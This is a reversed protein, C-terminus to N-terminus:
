NRSIVLKQVRTANTKNEILLYYIGPALGDNCIQLRNSTPAEWTRLEKGTFDVLTLSTSEKLGTFNLETCDNFPNPAVAITEEPEENIATIVGCKAVSQGLESQSYLRIDDLVLETAASTIHGWNTFKIVHTTSTAKFQFVFRYGTGATGTPYCRLFTKGFGIDVAFLGRYFQNGNSEGGAWFELVYNSGITLGSIAQELSLGTTGGYSPTNTPFGLPPPTVTCQSGVLCTTDAQVTSCSMATVGNGLYAAYSGDPIVCVTSPMLCPYSSTGGGTCTWSNLSCTYYSSNPCFVGQYSWPICNSIEFSGNVVKDTVNTSIRNNQRVCDICLIQSTLNFQLIFLSLFTIVSKNM